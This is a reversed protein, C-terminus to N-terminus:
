PVQDGQSSCRVRRGQSYTEGGRRISTSSNSWSVQRRFAGNVLELDLIWALVAEELCEVYVVEAALAALLGGCLSQCENNEAETLLVSGLVM